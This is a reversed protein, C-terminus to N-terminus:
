EVREKKPHRVSWMFILCGFTLLGGLLYAPWGTGTGGDKAASKDSAYVLFTALRLMLSALFISMPLINSFVLFAITCFFLSPVLLLGATVVQEQQVSRRDGPLM